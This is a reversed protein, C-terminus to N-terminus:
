VNWFLLETNKRHKIETQTKEISINLGGGGWRWGRNLTNNFLLQSLVISVCMSRWRRERWGTHTHTHQYSILSILLVEGGSTMEDTDSVLFDMVDILLILPQQLQWDRQTISKDVLPFVLGPPRSWLFHSERAWRNIMRRQGTDM